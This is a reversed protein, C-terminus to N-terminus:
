DTKVWPHSAWTVTEPAADGGCCDVDTFTLTKGDFSWRATITYDEAEQAEIQDRFVTYSAEFGPEGNPTLITLEGADFIM